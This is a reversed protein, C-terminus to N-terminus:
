FDQGERSNELTLPHECFCLDVTKLTFYMNCEMKKLQAFSM